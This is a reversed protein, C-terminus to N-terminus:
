ELVDPLIFKDQGEYAEKEYSVEMYATNFSRFKYLNTVYKVLYTLYFKFFGLKRVQTIHIWEHNLIHTDKSTKEDAMMFIFPYLTINKGVVKNAFWSNYFIHVKM